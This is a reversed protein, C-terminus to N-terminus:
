AQLRKCLCHFLHMVAVKHSTFILKSCKAEEHDPRWFMCLSSSAIVLRDDGTVACVSSLAPPNNQVQLVLLNHPPSTWDRSQEM